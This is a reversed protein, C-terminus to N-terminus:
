RKSHYGVQLNTQPQQCIDICTPINKELLYKYTDKFDKTLSGYDSEKSGIHLDSEAFFVKTGLGQCRTHAKLTRVITEGRNRKTM